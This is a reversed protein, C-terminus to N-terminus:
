ITILLSTTYKIGHSINITSPLFVICIEPLVMPNIKYNLFPGTKIGQDTDTYDM